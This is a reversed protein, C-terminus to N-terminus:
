YWHKQPQTSMTEPITSAADLFDLFVSPVMENEPDVKMHLQWTSFSNDPKNGFEDCLSIGVKFINFLILM